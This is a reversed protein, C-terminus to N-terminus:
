RANGGRDAAVPDGPGHVSRCSCLPDDGNHPRTEKRCQSRLSDYLALARTAVDSASTNEQEAIRHLLEHTERRLMVGYRKITTQM